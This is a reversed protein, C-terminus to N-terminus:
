LTLLTHFNIIFFKRFSFFVSASAMWENNGMINLQKVIVATKKFCGYGNNNTKTKKHKQAAPPPPPNSQVWRNTEM